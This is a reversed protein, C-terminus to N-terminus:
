TGGNLDRQGQLKSYRSSNIYQTISYDGVKGGGGHAHIIDYGGTGPNKNTMKKKGGGLGSNHKEMKKWKGKAKKKRGPAKGYPDSFGL